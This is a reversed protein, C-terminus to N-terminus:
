HRPGGGGPSGFVPKQNRYSTPVTFLSPTSARRAIRDVASRYTTSLPEAAGHITRSVTVESQVIMGGFTAAIRALEADVQEVRTSLKPGPLAPLDGAVLLVAHIHVDGTYYDSGSGAALRYSVDLVHKTTAHGLVPEGARSISEVRPKGRLRWELSPLTTLRSLAPLRDDEFWTQLQHNLQLWRGGNYIITDAARAGEAADLDVRMRDGDITITRGSSRTEYGTATHTEHLVTAANAQLTILLAVAIGLKV